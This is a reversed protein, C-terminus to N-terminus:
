FVKRIKKLLSYVNYCYPRYILDFSRPNCLVKGGFGSKFRSIGEWSKKYFIDSKGEPNVGGLDYFCFGKNKADIMIEKHLLSPAMVEKNESSSAGHAYVATDGFYFVIASALVRGEYFAQWIKVFCEPLQQVMKKYYVDPHSVFNDRKTTISNLKLFNEIDGVGILVGKKEALNINYRTKSKMEKFLLDNNKTLDILRLCQPQVSKTFRFPILDFYFEVSPDVRFFLVKKEESLKESLERFYFKIKDTALNGFPGRPLYWYFFGGGLDMKFVQAFLKNEFNLRLVKKGVAKQFEGWEWSQLFCANKQKRLFMNWQNKEECEKWM